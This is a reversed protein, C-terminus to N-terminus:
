PKLKLLDDCRYTQYASFPRRLMVGEGGKRVIEFMADFASETSDNRNYQARYVHKPLQERILVSMAWELSMGPRIVDFVVLRLDSWNGSRIAKSVDRDTKGRVLWLECDLPMEPLGATFWEPSAYAYGQRSELREGTWVARWGDFKESLWWGSVDQGNWENGHM